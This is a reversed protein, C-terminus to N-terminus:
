TSNHYYILLITTLFQEIKTILYDNIKLALINLNEFIRIKMSFKVTFNRQM